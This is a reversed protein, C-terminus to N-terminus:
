ECQSCDILAQGESEDLKSAAQKIEAWIKASEEDLEAKIAEDAARRAESLDQGTGKYTKPQWQANHSNLIDDTDQVHKLEHAKVANEWRDKEAQGGSQLPSTPVWEVAIVRTATAFHVNVPTTVVETPSV